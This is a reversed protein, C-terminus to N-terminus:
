PPRATGRRTSDVGLRSSGAACVSTLATLWFSPISQGERQLGRFCEMARLSVAGPRFALYASIPTLAEAGHLRPLALRPQGTQVTGLPVLSPCTWLVM